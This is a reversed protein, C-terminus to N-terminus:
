KGTYMMFCRGPFLPPQEAAIFIQICAYYSIGVMGVNGDCWPQKAIWEVLDYGDKPEHTDFMGAHEGESDGCGRVDAVVHVYGRGVIQKTNGAELTGDWLLSGYKQQFGIYFPQPIQPIAQLDKGYGSMALLAPFKGEVDPRYIDVALRVGDRMPIMLTEKKKLNYEPQSDINKKM